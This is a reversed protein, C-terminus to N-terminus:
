VNKGQKVLKLHTIKQIERRLWNDYEDSESRYQYFHSMVLVKYYQYASFDFTNVEQYGNLIELEEDETLFFQQGPRVVVSWALDYEQNGIGALEWDLTAEIGKESWLINAYHHDGHVFCETVVRPQNESLWANIAKLNIEEAQNDVLAHFKRLVIKGFNGKLTHIRGVNRGFTKCFWQSNQRYIEIKQSIRFGQVYSFVLYEVERYFGHEIIEPTKLWGYQKIAQLTGVENKFNSDAQRAFKIVYHQQDQGLCHIVDNRAHFYELVKGVKIKSFAVAQPEVVLDRFKNEFM